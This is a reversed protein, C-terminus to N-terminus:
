LNNLVSILQPLVTRVQTGDIMKQQINLIGRYMNLIKKRDTVELVHWFEMIFEDFIVFRNDFYDLSGGFFASQIILQQNFQSYFESSQKQNEVMQFSLKKIKQYVSSIVPDEDLKIDWLQQLFQFNQMCSNLDAEKLDTKIQKKLLIEYWANAIEGWLIDSGISKKSLCMSIDLLMDLDNLNDNNSLFNAVQNCFKDWFALSGFDATAMMLLISCYSQVEQYCKSGLSHTSIVSSLDIVRREILNAFNFLENKKFSSLIWTCVQEM